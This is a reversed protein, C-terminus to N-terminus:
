PKVGCVVGGDAGVYGLGKPCSLILSRTASAQMEGLVKAEADGVPEHSLAAPNRMVQADLYPLRAAARCTDITARTTYRAVCDEQSALYSPACALVLAIACALLPIVVSRM